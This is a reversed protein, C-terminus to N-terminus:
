ETLGVGWTINADGRAIAQLQDNKDEEFLLATVLLKYQKNATPTVDEWGSHEGDFSLTNSSIKSSEFVVNDGDLLRVIYSNANEQNEWGIVMKEDKWMVDTVVVPALLGSTLRDTLVTPLEDDAYTLTFTFVGAGPVTTAFDADAALKVYSTNFEEYPELNILQDSPSKVTVSAIPYDSSVAYNLAYVTENNVSKVEYYVEVAEEREIETEGCAILMVSLVVLLYYVSKFNM